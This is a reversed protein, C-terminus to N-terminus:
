ENLIMEWNIIEGFHNERAKTCITVFYFWNQSYDYNKLRLPKRQPWTYM